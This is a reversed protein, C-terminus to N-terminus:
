DDSEGGEPPLLFVGVVFIITFLGGVVYPAYVM